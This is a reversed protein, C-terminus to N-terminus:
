RPEIGRFCFGRNKLGLFCLEVKVDVVVEVKEPKGVTSYLLFFINKLNPVFQPKQRALAYGSSPLHLLELFLSM